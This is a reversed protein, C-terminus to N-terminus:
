NSFLQNLNDCHFLVIDSLLHTPEIWDMPRWKHSGLSFGVKGPLAWGGIYVLSLCAITKWNQMPVNNNCKRKSRPSGLHSLPLADAQWHLLCSLLLNLGQIPFIRQLLFHCGVGTNKDPFNWPCPLSTPSLGHPWLYNSVISCVRM